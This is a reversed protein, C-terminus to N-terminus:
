RLRGTVLNVNARARKYQIANNEKAVKYNYERRREEYKTFITIMSNTLSVSASIAAAVPNGGSGVLGGIFGTGTAILPNITDKIQEIRRETIQQLAQDGNIRSLNNVGLSTLSYALHQATRLVHATYLKWQRNNLGLMKKTKGKAETKNSSNENTEQENAGATTASIDDKRIVIEIRGSQKYLM